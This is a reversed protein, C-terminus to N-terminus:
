CAIDLFIGFVDKERGKLGGELAAYFKGRNLATGLEDSLELRTYSRAIWRAFIDKQQTTWDGPVIGDKLAFTPRASALCARSSWHRENINCQYWIPKDHEDLVYCHLLRPNKGFKQRSDTASDEIQIAGIWEVVPIKEFDENFLNCAQSAIVWHTPADHGGAPLTADLERLTVAPIISGQWWGNSRISQAQEKGTSPSPAVTSTTTTHTDSAM